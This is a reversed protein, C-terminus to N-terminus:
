RDPVEGNLLALHHLNSGHSISHIVQGRAMVPVAGDGSLGIQFVWLWLWDGLSKVELAMAGTATVRQLEGDKIFLRYDWIGGGLSM